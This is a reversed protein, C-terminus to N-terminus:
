ALERTTLQREGGDSGAEAHETQVLPRPPQRQRNPARDAQEGNVQQHRPQGVAAARPSKRPTPKSPMVQATSERPTSIPMATGANLTPTVQNASRAARTVGASPKPSLRPASVKATPVIAPKTAHRASYRAGADAPGNENSRPLATLRARTKGVKSLTSSCSPWAKNGHLATNGTARPAKSRGGGSAAPRARSRSAASRTSASAM